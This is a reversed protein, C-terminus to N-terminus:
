LSHTRHRKYLYASRDRGVLADPGILLTMWFVLFTHLRRMEDEEEVFRNGLKKQGALATENSGNQSQIRLWM